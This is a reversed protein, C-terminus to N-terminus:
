ETRPLKDKNLNLNEFTDSIFEDGFHLDVYQEIPNQPPVGEQRKGARYFCLATIAIDLIIFATLFGVIIARRRSTAEGIRFLMEPMILKCWVLGLAGWMILFRWAVWQTIHDPFHLYSWSWAHMITEMGWGALQELMGGVAASIVFIKWVPENRMPWLVATLLVAGFGYLPSFPGWVLGVRSEIVGYITYMYVTELILGLVSALLFIIVYQYFGPKNDDLFDSRLTKRAELIVRQQAPSIHARLKEKGFSTSETWLADDYVGADIRGQRLMQKFSKGAGRRALLRQILYLIGRAILFFAVTLLAIHLM